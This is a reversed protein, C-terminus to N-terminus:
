TGDPFRVESIAMVLEGKTDGQAILRLFGDIMVLGDKRPNEVWTGFRDDDQTDLLYFRKGQTTMEDVKNTSEM